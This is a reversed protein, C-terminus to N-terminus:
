PYPTQPPTSIGPKRCEVRVGGLPSGTLEVSGGLQAMGEAVLALGLGSGPTGRAEPARWFRETARQRHEAPMGPGGDEVVICHATVTVLVPDDVDSYKLANGVANGVAREVLGRPGVLLLPESRVEIERGSRRRAGAVVGEVVRDLRFSTESEAGTLWGAALDILEQVLASLDTVEEEIGALAEAAQAASLPKDSRTARLLLEVNTRLSTLPTRMEHAADDVLRQQEARSAALSSLLARMAQALADVEDAKGRLPIQAAEGAPDASRSARAATEVDYGEYRLARSLSSRIGPDDDVLGGSLLWM